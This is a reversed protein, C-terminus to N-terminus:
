TDAHQSKYVSIGGSHSVNGHVETPVKQMTKCDECENWTYGHAKRWDKVDQPTCGRQEALKEDAQAFNADRNETFDDIEVQGKSVESFDPYGDVFPISEIGYENLIENWTKHEPNTGHRDKPIEDRNPWWRSNGREGSWEGGNQPLITNFSVDTTKSAIEGKEEIPEPHETPKGDLSKEKGIAPLEDSNWAILGGDDIPREEPNKDWDEWKKEISDENPNWEILRSKGDELGEAKKDFVEPKKEISGEDPKWESLGNESEEPEELKKGYIELEKEISGEDPNWETLGDKGDKLIEPKEMKPQEIAPGETEKFQVKNPFM